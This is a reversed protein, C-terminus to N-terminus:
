GSKVRESVRGPDRRGARLERPSRDFWAHTRRTLASQESFGLRKSISGVDLTTDRLYYGAPDRRVDDRIRRFSTGERTLHRHLTRVHLNLQGAVWEGTCHGEELAHLIAARVRRSLPLQKQPFRQEIAAITKRLAGTDASAIPCSMDQARYVTAYFRDDFRVRLRFLPSLRTIRVPTFPAASHLALARRRRDAPDCELPRHAPDAGDAAGGRGNGRVPYRSGADGFPGLERPSALHELRSQACLWSRGVARADRRFQARPADCARAHGRDRRRMPTVRATHQLGVPGANQRDTGPSQCAAFLRDSGRRACLGGLWRGSAAFACRRRM